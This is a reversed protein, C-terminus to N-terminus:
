YLTHDHDFGTSWIISTINNERLELSTINSACRANIDPIDAEDYHAPPASLNHEIIYDDVMKKIKRSFEDAFKVHEAATRGSFFLAKMQMM